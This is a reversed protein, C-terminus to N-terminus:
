LMSLKAVIERIDASADMVGHWDEKRVCLILYDKMLQLDQRLQGSRKDLSERIMPVTQVETPM